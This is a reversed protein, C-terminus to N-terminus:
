WATAAQQLDPRATNTFQGTNPDSRATALEYHGRIVETLAATNKPNVQLQKQATDIKKQIVQDGQNSGHGGKFLDGLSGRTTGQHANGGGCASLAVSGVAVTVVVVSRLNV